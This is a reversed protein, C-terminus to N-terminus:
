LFTHKSANMRFQFTEQAKSQTQKDLNDSIKRISRLLEDAKNKCSCTNLDNKSFKNKQKDIPLKENRNRNVLEFYDDEFFITVESFTPQISKM